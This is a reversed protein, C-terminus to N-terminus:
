SVPKTVRKMYIFYNFGTRKAPLPSPTRTFETFGLKEYLRIASPNTDVVELIYEGYALSEMVHNLLGFAIGKGRHAEATAVYEISAAEEGMDFPYTHNYTFRNLGWYAIRGRLFGLEKVLVGKDLKIPPPKKHTVGVIALVEQGEVAVYFRDLLFMHALARALKGKDKSFHKIGQDYFGDVFIGSVQSSADFPLEAAKVFRM